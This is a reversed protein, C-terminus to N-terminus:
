RPSELSYVCCVMILIFLFDGSIIEFVIVDAAITKKTLSELVHPLRAMCDELWHLEVTTCKNKNYM